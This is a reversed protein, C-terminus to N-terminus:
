VEQFLEDPEGRWDLAKAIREGRLRFAKEKGAEIRSLSTPNVDAKQALKCQSLGQKKREQTIRLM